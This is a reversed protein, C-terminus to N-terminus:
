LTVFGALLAVAAAQILCARWYLRLAARVDQATAESRGDGMFHDDVIDGGYIRPGALKLGLVGAM